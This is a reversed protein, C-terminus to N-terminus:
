TAYIKVLMDNLRTSQSFLSIVHVLDIDNCRATIFLICYQGCTETNVSQLTVNSYLFGSPSVSNLFHHIDESMPPLGYSDFYEAVGYEPLYVAVWHEGPSSSDDTNIVFAAPRKKIQPLMDRPFTGIFCDLHKLHKNLDGTNM